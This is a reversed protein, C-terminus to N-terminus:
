LSFSDVILRELESLQVLCVVLWEEEHHDDVYYELPWGGSYMQEYEKGDLVSIGYIIAVKEDKADEYGEGSLSKIFSYKPPDLMKCPHNALCIIDSEEISSLAKKANPLIGTNKKIFAAM